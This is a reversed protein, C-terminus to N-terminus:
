WDVPDLMALSIFLADEEPDTTIPDVLTPFGAGQNFHSTMLTSGAFADVDGLQNHQEPQRLVSSNPTQNSQLSPDPTLIVAQPITEKNTSMPAFLQNQLGNDNQVFNVHPLQSGHWCSGIERVLRHIENTLEIVESSIPIDKQLALSQSCFSLYVECTAPLSIFGFNQIHQTILSVLQHRSSMVEISIPKISAPLAIASKVKIFEMVGAYALDLNLLQPPKITDMGLTTGLSIQCHSPLQDRWDDLEQSIRWLVNDLPADDPQHIIDNLLAILNLLMNFISLIRGPRKHPALTQSSNHSGFLTNSQWTEWEENGDVQMAGILRLDSRKLYPRRGLHASVLTDLLFCGLATRKQGDDMSSFLNNAYGHARYQIIQLDITIYVARGVLLWASTWSARGIHLLGLILLARVHGCEYVSSELPILSLAIALLKQPSFHSQENDNLTDFKFGSTNCQHATYAFVAWLFAREGSALGDGPGQSGNALMYAPRLLDHKQSIPFWCHTNAFYIDLLQSWHPPLRPYKENELYPNEPPPISTSHTELEDLSMPVGPANPDEIDEQLLASSGHSMEPLTQENHTQHRESRASSVHALRDDFRQMFMEDDEASEAVLLLSEMQKVVRSKRWVDLLSRASTARQPVPLRSESLDEEASLLTSVLDESGDVHCFVLGLITEMARVYGAPLGRKKTSQNYTCSRNANACPHCTPQQGDCRDRKRRCQDCARSVRLRKTQRPNDQEDGNGRGRSRQGDADNQAKKPQRPRSDPGNEKRPQVM